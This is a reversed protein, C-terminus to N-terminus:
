CAGAELYCHLIHGFACSGLRSVEATGECVLADRHSAELSICVALSLKGQHWWLM